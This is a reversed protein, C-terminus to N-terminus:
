RAIRNWPQESSFREILFETLLTLKLSIPGPARVLHLGMAPLPHDDLVPVLTGAQLERHIMFAPFVGIGLGELAAARLAEGNNARIRGSVRVGIPRPKGEFLWLGPDRFGTYILAEHDSLDHPGKPTGHRHLYDPSAAIVGHMWAIRRALLTPQGPQGIRLAADFGESVIDHIHDAYSVDLALRPHRAAFVALAPALHETGFSLPAALRLQGALEGDRGAITARAEEAESLIRTAHILFDSGAETLSIGRTTRTLLRAGLDAELKALRRSVVSKSIGMREGARTLGNLTAVHVFTQIDALEMGAAKTYFM